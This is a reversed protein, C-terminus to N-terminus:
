ANQVRFFYNTSIIFLGKEDQGLSQPDSIATITNAYYLEGEVVEPLSIGAAGHLLDFITQANSRAMQYDAARSIVQVAKAKADKLYFNPVGGSEILAVCDGTESSPIFGVWLDTGITFDTENEIYQAIAKIM